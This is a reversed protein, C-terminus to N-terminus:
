PEVAFISPSLATHSLQRVEAFSPECLIQTADADLLAIRVGSEDAARTGNYLRWMQSNHEITLNHAARITETAPFSNQM